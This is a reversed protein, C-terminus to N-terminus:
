ISVHDELLSWAKDRNVMNISTASSLPPASPLSSYVLSPVTSRLPLGIRLDFVPLHLAQEKM